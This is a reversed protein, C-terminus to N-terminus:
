LSQISLIWESLEKKIGRLRNLKKGGSMTTSTTNSIEKNLNEIRRSLNTVLYSTAMYLIDSSNERNDSWSTLGNKIQDFDGYEENDPNVYIIPHKM